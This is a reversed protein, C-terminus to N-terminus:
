CPSCCPWFHGSTEEFSPNSQQHPFSGVRVTNRGLIALVTSQANVTLYRESVGVGRGM